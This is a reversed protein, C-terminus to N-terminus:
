SAMTACSIAPTTVPAQPSSSPGRPRTSRTRSRAAERNSRAHSYTHLPRGLARVFPLNSCFIEVPAPTHAPSPALEGNVPRGCRGLARLVVPVGWLLHICIQARKIGARSDGCSTRRGRIRPIGNRRNTNSSSLQVGSGTTEFDDDDLTPEFHPTPRHTSIVSKELQLIGVLFKGSGSDLGAWM